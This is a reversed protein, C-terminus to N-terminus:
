KRSARRIVVLVAINTCNTPCRLFGEWHSQLQWKTLFHLTKLLLCISNHPLCLRTKLPLFISNHPVYLHYTRLLMLISNHPVYLHHTRLLLCISNHLLLFPIDEAVPAHQQPVYLHCTRLLLLMSNHLVCITHGCYCACATTHCVCIIHGWCCFCVTTHFVFPKDEAVPVHQQTSCVIM